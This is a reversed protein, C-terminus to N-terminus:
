ERTFSIPFYLGNRYVGIEWETDLTYAHDFLWAKGMENARTDSLTSKSLTHETMVKDSEDARVRVVYHHKNFVSM